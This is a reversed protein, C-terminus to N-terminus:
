FGRHSLTDITGDDQCAERAYAHTESDASDDEFALKMAALEETSKSELERAAAERHDPPIQAMLCRLAAERQDPSGTPRSSRQAATGGINPPKSKQWAKLAPNADVAQRVLHLPEDLAGAMKSLSTWEEGEAMRALLKRRVRAVATGEDLKSKPKPKPRKAASQSGAPEERLFAILNPIADRMWLVTSHGAPEAAFRMPNVPPRWRAIWEMEELDHKAALRESPKRNYAREAKISGVDFPAPDKDAAERLEQILEDVQAQTLDEVVAVVPHWRRHTGTPLRCRIWWDTRSKGVAM